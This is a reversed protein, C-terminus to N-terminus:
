VRKNSNNEPNKEYIVGELKKCKADIRLHHITEHMTWVQYKMLSSMHYESKKSIKDHNKTSAEPLTQHGNNHDISKQYFLM